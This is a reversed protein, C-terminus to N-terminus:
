QGGDEVTLSSQCPYIVLLHYQTVSAPNNVGDSGNYVDELYRGVAPAYAMRNKNISFHGRFQTAYRYASSLM